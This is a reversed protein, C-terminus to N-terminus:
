GNSNMRLHPPIGNLTHKSLVQVADFTQRNYADLTRDILLRLRDPDINGFSAPAYGLHEGDLVIHVRTGPPMAKTVLHLLHEKSM